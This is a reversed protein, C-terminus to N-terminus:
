CRWNRIADEGAAIRDRITDADFSPLPEGSMEAAYRRSFWADAIVAADNPPWWGTLSRALLGAYEHEDADIMLIPAIEALGEDASAFIFFINEGNSRKSHAVFSSLHTMDWAANRVGAIARERDDSRLSKFLRRKKAFPSFYMTAFIAGPGALFFDRAMWEFLARSRDLPTMPTLELEATKLAVIYNRNWRHLPFALDKDERPAPTAVPLRTARGQALDVWAQAQGHNAARFWALEEQAIANGDRHALEHFAISPEIDLDVAQAFAMLDVAIRTPPDIKSPMGNMAIKAMRSILNRDPLLITRTGDFAQALKFAGASLLGAEPPAYGPALAGSAVLRAAIADVDEFPFAPDMQLAFVADQEFEEMM